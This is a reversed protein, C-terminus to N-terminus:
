RIEIRPSREGLALQPLFQALKGTYPRFYPIANHEEGVLSDGCEGNINPDFSDQAFSIKHPLSFDGGLCHRFENRIIEACVTAVRLLIQKMVRSHGPLPTALSSQVTGQPSRPLPLPSAQM